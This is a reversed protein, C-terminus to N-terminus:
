AHRGHIGDNIGVLPKHQSQGICEVRLRLQLRLQFVRAPAAEGQGGHSWTNHGQGWIYWGSYMGGNPGMRYM